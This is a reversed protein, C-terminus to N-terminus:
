FHDKLGFVFDTDSLTNNHTNYKLSENFYKNYGGRYM